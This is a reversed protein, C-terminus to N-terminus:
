DCRRRAVVYGDDLDVEILQVPEGDDGREMALLINRDWTEGEGACSAALTWAQDAAGIPTVTGIDCESEYYIIRRDKIVTPVIDGNNAQCDYAWAGDFPDAAFAPAATMVLLAISSVLKRM